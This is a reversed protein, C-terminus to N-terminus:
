FNLLDELDNKKAKNWYAELVYKFDPLENTIYIIPNMQKSKGHKAAVLDLGKTWNSLGTSGLANARDIVRPLLSEGWKGKYEKPYDVLSGNDKYIKFKRGTINM